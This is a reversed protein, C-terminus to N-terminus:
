TRVALINLSDACGCFYVDDITASLDIKESEDDLVEMPGIKKVGGNLRLMIQMKRIKGMRVFAHVDIFDEFYRCCPRFSDIKRAVLQAMLGHTSLVGNIDLPVLEFRNDKIINNTLRLSIDHVGIKLGFQHSTSVFTTGVTLKGLSVLVRPASIPGPGDFVTGKDLVEGSPGLIPRKIACYDLLGQRVSVRLHLTELLPKIKDKSAKSLHTNPTAIRSDYGPILEKLTLPTVIDIVNQLWLSLPDYRVTIDQFDIHLLTNLSNLTKDETILASISLTWNRSATPIGAIISSSTVANMDSTSPSVQDEEAVMWDRAFTTVHVIPINYAGAGVRVGVTSIGSACQPDNMQSDSIEFVSVNEVELGVFIQSECGGSSSNPKPIRSTYFEILPERTSLVYTLRENGTPKLNSGTSVTSPKDNKENQSLSCIFIQATLKVGIGKSFILSAPEASSTSGKKDAISPPVFFDILGILLSYECQHM